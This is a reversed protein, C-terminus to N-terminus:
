LWRVFLHDKCDDKQAFDAPQRSLWGIPPCIDSGEIHLHRQMNAVTEGLGSSHRMDDVLPNFGANVFDRALEIGQAQSLEHPITFKPGNAIAGLTPRM